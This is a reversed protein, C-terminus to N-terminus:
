PLAKRWIKLRAWHACMGAHYLAEANCIRWWPTDPTEHKLARAWGKALAAHYDREQDYYALNPESM